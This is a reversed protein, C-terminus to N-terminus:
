YSFIQNGYEINKNKDTDANELKDGSCNKARRKYRFSANPVLNHVNQSKMKLAKTKLSRTSQNNVYVFTSM